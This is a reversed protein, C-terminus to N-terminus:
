PGRYYSRVDNAGVEHPQPSPSSPHDLTLPDPTDMPM